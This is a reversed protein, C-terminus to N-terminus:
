KKLLKKQFLNQMFKLRYTYLIPMIITGICNFILLYTRIYYDKISSETTKISDYFTMILNPFWCIFFVLFSITQAKLVRYYLIVM